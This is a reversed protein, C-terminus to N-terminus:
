STESKHECSRGEEHAMVEAQVATIPRVLASLGNRREDTPAWPGTREWRFLRIAAIGFVVAYAATVLLPRTPLFHGQM